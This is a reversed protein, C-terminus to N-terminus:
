ERPKLERLSGEAALLKELWDPDGSQEAKWAAQIKARREGSQKRPRRKSM